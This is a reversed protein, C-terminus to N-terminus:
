TKKWASRWRWSKASPSVTSLACVRNYKGRRCCTRAAPVILTIADRFHRKGIEGFLECFFGQEVGGLIGGGTRDRGWCLAQAIHNQSLNMRHLFSQLFIFLQNYPETGARVADADQFDIEGGPSQGHKGPM